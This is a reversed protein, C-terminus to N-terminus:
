PHSPSLGFALTPPALFTAVSHTIFHALASEHDDSRCIGRTLFPMQQFTALTHHMAGVVFSLRWLFEAPSLQPAHRRILQGFKTLVPHYEEALLQKTIQLPESIGRSLIQVFYRGGTDTSRHLDFLPRALAEIIKELPPPRTGAQARAEDLLSLRLANLPRVRRLFVERFLSEKNRFHYNVSALNVSAAQTIERLSVGHFTQDAFLREATDM